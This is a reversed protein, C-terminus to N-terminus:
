SKVVDKRAVHVELIAVEDLTKPKYTTGVQAIKMGYSNVIKKLGNYFVTAQATVTGAHVANSPRAPKYLSFLSARPNSKANLAM